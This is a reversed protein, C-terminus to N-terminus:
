LWWPEENTRFDNKKWEKLIVKNDNIELEALSLSKPAPGRIVKGQSNYQSGHCPCMYKQEAVNWPVVCGLHTCIANIAFKELSNDSTTILYYPDGKLGQVLDRSPYKHEDIWSNLVVDNGVRDKAILGDGGNKDKIPYFFSLYGYLLPGCSSYISNLLISNMIQRKKIDPIPNIIPKTNIQPKLNFSVSFKNIFLLLMCFRKINM